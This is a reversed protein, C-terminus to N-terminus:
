DTEPEDLDYYKVIIEGTRRNYRKRAIYRKGNREVIESNQEIAERVEKHMRKKYANFTEHNMEADDAIMAEFVVVNEPTPPIYVWFPCYLGHKMANKNGYPAGFGVANKNGKPAGHGKANKNGKPAGM